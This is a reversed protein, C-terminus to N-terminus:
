PLNKMLLEVLLPDQGCQFGLSRRASAGTAEIGFAQGRVISPITLVCPAGEDCLRSKVAGVIMNTLEGIVDNVMEDGELEAEAMGLMRGALTRAFANTLHLYVVGNVDGIFGVSAIVLETGPAPPAPLPAPQAELTLMTQFVEAVGSQLLEATEDIFNRTAISM